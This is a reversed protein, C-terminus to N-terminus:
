PRVVIRATQGPRLTTAPTFRFKVRFTRGDPEAVHSIASITAAFSKGPQTDVSVISKQGLHLHPLQRALVLAEAYVGTLSVVTVLPSGPQATEGAHAALGTAIGSLPSVLRMAAVAKSAGVLGARAQAVGARAARIDQDALALTQKKGELATKLGEQAQRVGADATDVDKQALAVRYPVGDPGEEIRKVQERATDLDFQAVAVLNRAAEMDNRSVGGVKELAELDRVTKQARTLALEAKQVGEQAAKLDAQTETRAADLALVAQSRKQQAQDLGSRAAAIDADAKTAQAARGAEAKTVQAQAAKVQAQAAAEQTRLDSDDLQILAQGRRVTDGERVLVAVIRVPMRSSLTAQAAAVISGVLTPDDGTPTEPHSRAGGQNPEREARSMNIPFTPASTEGTHDSVTNQATTSPAAQVAEHSRLLPWAALLALTMAVPGLIWRKWNM